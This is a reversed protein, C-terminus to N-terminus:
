NMAGILQKKLNKQIRVKEECVEDGNIGLKRKFLCELHTGSFKNREETGDFLEM